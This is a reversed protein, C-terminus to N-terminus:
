PQAALQHELRPHGHLALQADLRRIAAEDLDVQQKFVVRLTAGGIRATLTRQGTIQLKESGWGGVRMAELATGPMLLSAVNTTNRWLSGASLAVGLVFVVASFASFVMATERVMWSRARQQEEPLGALRKREQHVLAVGFGVLLVVLGGLAPFAYTRAEQVGVANWALRVIQEPAAHGVLEARQGEAVARAAMPSRGAQLQAVALLETTSLPVSIESWLTQAGLRLPAGKYSTVAAWQELGESSSLVQLTDSVLAASDSVIPLLREARDLNSRAVYRSWGVAGLTGGASVLSLIVVLRVGRTASTKLWRKVLPVEAVASALLFAGAMAWFSIGLWTAPDLIQAIGEPTSFTAM